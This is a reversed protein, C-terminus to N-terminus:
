QSHLRAQLTATINLSMGLKIMIQVLPTMYQVLVLELETSFYSHLHMHVSSLIDWLSMLARNNALMEQVPVCTPRM